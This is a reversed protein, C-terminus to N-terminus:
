EHDVISKGTKCVEIAHMVGAVFTVPIEVDPSNVNRFLMISVESELAEIVAQRAYEVILHTRDIAPELKEVPTQYESMAHNMLKAKISQGIPDDFIEIGMIVEVLGASKCRSPAYHDVRSM